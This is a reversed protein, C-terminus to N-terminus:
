RPSAKENAQADAETNAQANAEINAQADAKGHAQANADSSPRSDAVINADGLARSHAFSCGRCYYTCGYVFHVVKLTPM